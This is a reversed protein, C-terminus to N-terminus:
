GREAPLPCVVRRLRVATGFNYWKSIFFKSPLSYNNNNEAFSYLLMKTYPNNRKKHAFLSIERYIPFSLFALVRNNDFYPVRSSPTGLPH